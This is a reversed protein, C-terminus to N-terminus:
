FGELTDMAKLIFVSIGPRPRFLRWSVGRSVKWSWWLVSTRKSGKNGVKSEHWSRLAGTRQWGPGRDMGGNEGPEVASAINQGNYSVSMFRAGASFSSVAGQGEKQIKIWDCGSLTVWLSCGREKGRGQGQKHKQHFEAWIAGTPVTLIWAAADGRSFKGCVERKGKGEWASHPKEGRHKRLLRRIGRGGRRGFEIILM